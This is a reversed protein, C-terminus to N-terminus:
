RYDPKDISTYIFEDIEQILQQVELLNRRLETNDEEYDMLYENLENSNEHIEMAKDFEPPVTNGKLQPLKYKSLGSEELSQNLTDIAEKLDMTLEEAKEYNEILNDPESDEMSQEEESEGLVIGDPINETPDESETSEEDEESTNQSESTPNTSSQSTTRDPDSGTKSRSTTRETRRSRNRDPRSVTSQEFEMIRIIGYTFSVFTCYGMMMVWAMSSINMVLSATFLAVFPVRTAYLWSHSTIYGHLVMDEKLTVYLRRNMFWTGIVALGGIAPTLLSPFPELLVYGMGITIPISIGCAAILFPYEDTASELNPLEGFKFASIGLTYVAAVSAVTLLPISGFQSNIAITVAAIVSAIIAHGKSDFVSTAVPFLLFKSSGGDGSYPEDATDRNNNTESPSGDEDNGIIPLSIDTM